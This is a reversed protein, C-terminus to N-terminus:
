TFSLPAGEKDLTATNSSERLVNHQCKKYHKFKFIPSNHNDTAETKIWLVM